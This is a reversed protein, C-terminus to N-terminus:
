RSTSARPSKTRTAMGTAPIASAPQIATPSTWSMAKGGGGLQLRWRASWGSAHKLRGFRDASMFEEASRDLVEGAGLAEPGLAEAGLAEPATGDEATGDAAPLPVVGALPKVTSSVLVSSRTMRPKWSSTATMAKSAETQNTRRMRVPRQTPKM